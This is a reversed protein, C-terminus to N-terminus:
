LVDWISVNSKIYDALAYRLADIYHNNKDVIVPLIEQTNKDVKYSYKKFEEITNVCRPHIYINTFSRLYEVGDEVSGSWKPASDIAFGKQAIHSITEPRAADGYIKWRRADPVSDFLQPIEDMEVGHGGAEYQIYLNKENGEQRIFCQVLTTPDNAFGWDAGNFKRSQYLQWMEPEDFDKITWKGHFVIQEARGVAKGLYEHEYALYDRRKLDEAMEIFKKGLWEPDIDLYCSEHVMRGPSEQESEKNVWASPDNPPNYTIFVVYNEGGRLVSQMVNRIEQMGNFEAAEEFWLIKFYGQKIKISKLKLPDDLGKMIAKQGTPTYTIEAPAYTHRFFMSLQLKDIAWLLNPMISTRITDGVKRCILANADKDEVMGEITKIACFSSKTSGRGGKLWFESHTADEIAHYVPYFVPAIVDAISVDHVRSM